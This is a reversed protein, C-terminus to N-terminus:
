NVFLGLNEPLKNEPFRVSVFNKWWALIGKATNIKEGPVLRCHCTYVVLVYENISQNIISHHHSSMVPHLCVSERRSRGLPCAGPSISRARQLRIRPRSTLHWCCHLCPVGMQMSVLEATDSVCSNFIALSCLVKQLSIFENM